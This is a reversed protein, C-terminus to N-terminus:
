CPLLVKAMPSNQILSNDGASASAYDCPRDGTEMHASGARGRLNKAGIKLLHYCCMSELHSM